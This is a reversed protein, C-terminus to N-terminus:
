APEPRSGRSLALIFFLAAASLGGGIWVSLPRYRFVVRHTGPPLAVARFVGDARLVEAPRGDVQAKWGPYFLDALVLLGASDSTMEAVVREPRDEALRAVLLPRELGPTPLAAAPARELLVERSWDTEGRAARSWARAADPEVRFAGVFSLRPRFPNIPARFIEGQKRSGMDPPAFTTVLVRAGAAGAAVMPSGPADVADAIARAEATPLAAATRVTPVGFLLNTYGLFAQRQRRLTQVDFRASQLVWVAVGRMPPTMVRGSMHALPGLSDPPRRIEEEPVFAFLGRGALALSATLALAATWGLATGLAPRSRTAFRLADCGLGALVPLAFFTWALAKAPYRVRDFPPLSRLWEGAPGAAAAAVGALAVAALPLALPRRQREAFGALVLAAGLPGIALSALYSTGSEGGGMRVLSGLAAAGVAGAERDAAPLPARRDSGLALEGMPVLVWGALALGLLAGATLRLPARRRPPEAWGTPRPPRPFLAFLAALSLTAGSIEPSGAMAQLGVLTALGAIAPRSRLGGRALSAIAPLYMFAGFHNWYVSLSAAFGSGAFLAAGALAAPASAAEERLFRWLGWAGLAFHALLYLGAAMAPSPLLFLLTPPYFAGSQANALWPEGAGSLPNWLPVEGARLRDATYLKLPYFFDGQDRFAPARREFVAPALWLIPGVLAALFTAALVGRRASV